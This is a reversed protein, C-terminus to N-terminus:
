FFHGTMTASSNLIGRWWSRCTIRAPLRAPQMRALCGHKDLMYITRRSM